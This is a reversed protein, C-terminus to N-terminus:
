QLLDLQPYALIPLNVLLQKLHNFAQQCQSTRNFGRANKRTLKYLPQAISAFGQVFHHYYNARGLFERLEKMDTPQPYSTVAERGKIAVGDGSTLYGLYHVQGSLPLHLVNSLQKAEDLNKTAAVLNFCIWSREFDKTSIEPLPLELQTQQQQAMQIGSRVGLYRVIICVFLEILLHSLLEFFLEYYCTYVPM